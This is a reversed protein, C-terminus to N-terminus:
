SRVSINCRLRFPRLDASAPALLPELPSCPAALDFAVDARACPVELVVALFVDSLGAALVPAVPRLVALFVAETGDFDEPVSLVLAGRFAVVEFDALEFDAAELAPTVEFDPLEDLDVVEDF